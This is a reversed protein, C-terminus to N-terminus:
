KSPFKENIYEELAENSYLLEPPFIEKKHEGYQHYTFKFWGDDEFGAFDWGWTPSGAYEGYQAMKIKFFVHEARQVYEEHQKHWAEFTEKPTM